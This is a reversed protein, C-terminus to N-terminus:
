LLFHYETDCVSISTSIVPVFVRTMHSLCGLVRSTHSPTSTLISVAAAAAPHSSPSGLQSGDAPTNLAIVRRRPHLNM